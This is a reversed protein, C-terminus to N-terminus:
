RVTAYRKTIREGQPRPYPVYWPWDMPVRGLEINLLPIIDRLDRVRLVELDLPRGMNWPRNYLVPYKIHSILNGITKWRDDIFINVGLMRLMDNKPRGNIVYANFPIGDLHEVLWDHTVGMSMSHRLTVVSIPKGTVEYVWRMVEAMFPTPLASPSEELICRNIVEVIEKESVDGPVKFNFKEYGDPSHRTDEIPMGFYDAVYKRLFEGETLVSDMDFAIITKSRVAPLLEAWTPNYITNNCNNKMVRM